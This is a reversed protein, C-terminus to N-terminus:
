PSQTFFIRDDREFVAHAFFVAVAPQGDGLRKAFFQLQDAVIIEDGIRFDEGFADAVADGIGNQDLEVLDAGYGLSQFRHGHRLLGTVARDDRMAGALGLVSEDRIQRDAGAGPWILVPESQRESRMALYLRRSAM